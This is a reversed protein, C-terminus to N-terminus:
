HIAYISWLTAYWQSRSWWLLAFKSPWKDLFQVLTIDLAKLYWRTYYWFAQCKFYGLFDQPIFLTFATHNERTEWDIYQFKGANCFWFVSKCRPRVTNAMDESRASSSKHDTAIRCSIRRLLIAIKGWCNSFWDCCAALKQFITCIHRYGIPKWCVLQSIHILKYRTTHSMYYCELRIFCEM